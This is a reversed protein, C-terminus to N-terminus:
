QGDKTTSSADTSVTNSAPKGRILLTGGGSCEGTVAETPYVRATGGTSVAADVRAAELDGVDANGGTDSAVTLSEVKGGARVTAGTSASVTVSSGAV